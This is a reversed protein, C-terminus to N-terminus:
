QYNSNPSLGLDIGVAKGGNVIAADPLRDDFLLAAYYKGTCSMSVTVTKLMGDFSRHLKAEVEGIKPLKISGYLLKVSQPYAISQM